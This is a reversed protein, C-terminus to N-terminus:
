SLCYFSSFYYYRWCWCWCCYYCHTRCSIYIYVDLNVITNSLFTRYIFNNEEHTEVQFTNACEDCVYLPEQFLSFFCYQCIEHECVRVCVPRGCVSECEFSSISIFGTFGISPKSVRDCDDSDSSKGTSADFVGVGGVTRFEPSLM